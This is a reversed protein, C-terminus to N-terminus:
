RFGLLKILFSFLSFLGAFGCVFYIVFLMILGTKKM